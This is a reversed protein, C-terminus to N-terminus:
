QDLISAELAAAAAADAAVLTTRSPDFPITTPVASGDALYIVEYPPWVIKAALEPAVAKLAEILKAHKVAEAAAQTGLLDYFTVPTRWAIVALANIARLINEGVVQKERAADAVATITPLDM